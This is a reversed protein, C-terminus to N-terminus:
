LVLFSIFPSLPFDNLFSSDGKHFARPCNDCCLLDGGDACISCLDDNEEAFLKRLQSLKMFLEHLSVGNSTYIHLYSGFIDFSCERSAILLRVLMHKLSFLASRVKAAFAFYELVRRIVSQRRVFYALETRDPLADDQFVLKHLWLDGLSSKLNRVSKFSHFGNQLSSLISLIKLHGM